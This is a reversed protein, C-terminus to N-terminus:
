SGQAISMYHFSSSFFFLVCPRWGETSNYFLCSCVWIISSFHYIGSDTLQIRSSDFYTRHVPSCSNVESNSSILMFSFLFNNSLHDVILPLVQKATAQGWKYGLWVLRIFVSVMCHRKWLVAISSQGRCFLLLWKVGLYTSKLCQVSLLLFLFSRKTNM